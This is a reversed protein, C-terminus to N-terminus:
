DIHSEPTGVSKISARRPPIRIVLQFCLIVAHRVLVIGRSFRGSLQLDVSQCLRELPAPRDEVDADAGPPECLRERVDPELDGPYVDGAPHEQLRSLLPQFAEQEAVEVTRGRRERWWDDIRAQLEDRRQLLAANRPTFDALIAELSAWFRDPSVGTGPLLEGEVFARLTEHVRLTDSITM